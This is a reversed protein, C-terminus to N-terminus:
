RATGTFSKKRTITDRPKYVPVKELLPALKAHPPNPSSYIMFCCVDGRKVDVMALMQKAQNEATLKFETKGVAANPTTGSADATAIPNPTNQETSNKVGANKDAAAQTSADEKPKSSRLKVKAGTEIALRM